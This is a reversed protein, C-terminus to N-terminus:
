ISKVEVCLIVFPVFRLRALPDGYCAILLQWWVCYQCGSWWHTFWLLKYTGVILVNSAKPYLSPLFRVWVAFGLLLTTDRKNTSTTTTESEDTSARDHRFPQREEGLSFNWKPVPLGNIKHWPKYQSGTINFNYMWM